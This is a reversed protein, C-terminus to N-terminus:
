IVERTSETKGIDSRYTLGEFHIEKMRHYAMERACSLTPGIGLSGFVRGGATILNQNERRVGAFFYPPLEQENWLSSAISQGVQPHDPYGSAAAVVCVAHNNQFSVSRPMEGLRGDAMAKLWPLLDGQIRPMLVQTEPDGLRANFELVWFKEKKLDVMLGAYLIGQFDAGRKKMERLTPLFVENRIREAWVGSIGPVPSISGMGGTNPGLNGDQLRKYDRAPELLSCSVGDCFAMWSLEEGELFEEIVIKKPVSEGRVSTRPNNEAALFQAVAQRAEDRTHCIKVGKGLALGDAKIVWPAQGWVLSDLVAEAQEVSHAVWYRATPVEAADMVEKAFAKSSEIQAAKATPGVVKLGFSLFIDM